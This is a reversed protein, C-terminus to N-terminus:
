DLTNRNRRQGIETEGDFSFLIRFRINIVGKTKDHKENKVIVCAEFEKNTFGVECSQQSITDSYTYLSSQM